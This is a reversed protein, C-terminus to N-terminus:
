EFPYKIGTQLRIQDMLRVLDFSHQWSWKDSTIRKNRLCQNAEEIEYTYGKGLVDFEHVTLEKGKVLRLRSTEHWRSDLYIEGQEGCITARMDENHSFSSYLIAQSQDYTLIMGIQEDVGSKSLVASAKLANPNGMLQYALFLPYIGIDLLSGGGKKPDFLRSNSGKDLGNFSFTANIYRLKGVVGLEVWNIIQEIAPNFRTWLGEMLFVQERQALNIMEKVQRQNISLPKECLVAKKSKLADLSHIYHAPNLSAIYIIDVEQDSFLRDYGEYFRKAKFRNSFEKARDKSSSAVAVLECEEVLLLDAAFKHAIKGLGLIGWKIINPM